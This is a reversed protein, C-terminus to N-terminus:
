SRTRRLWSSLPQDSTRTASAGWRCWRVSSGAQSSSSASWCGPAWSSATPADWSTWHEIDEHRNTLTIVNRLKQQTGSSNHWYNNKIYTLLEPVTREYFRIQCEAEVASGISDAVEQLLDSDEKTSFVKDFTVKCAIAGSALPELQAVYEKVLHFQYGTGRTLRDHSTEKIQEVVKPLLADISTVGYISASAYSKEELQQTNDRLKKLGLAIQDRELAYQADIQASTAM